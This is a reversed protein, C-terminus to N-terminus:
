TVHKWIRGARISLIVSHNVGYERGLSNASEDPRARIQRVKDPDLKRKPHRHWPIIGPKARGKARMDSMNEKYTGSRLHAPNVCIRNDCTHMVVEPTEGTAMQHSYRHAGLHPSGKGGVQFRGYGSKEIKGIWQWCEDPGAKEVYRWFREEPLAHNRRGGHPSGYKMFRQYHLYCMSRANITTECGEVNCIPRLTAGM